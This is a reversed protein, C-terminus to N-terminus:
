LYLLFHVTRHWLGDTASSISLSKSFFRAGSISTIPPLFIMHGNVLTNTCHTLLKRAETNLGPLLLSALHQYASSYSLFNQSKLGSNMATLNMDSSQFVQYEFGNWMCNIVVAWFSLFRANYLCNQGRRRRRMREVFGFSILFNGILKAINPLLNLLDNTLPMFHFQLILKLGNFPQLM